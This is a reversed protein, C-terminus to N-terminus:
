KTQSYCHATLIPLFSLTILLLHWAVSLGAFGAGLGALRLPRQSLSISSTSRSNHLALCHCLSSPSLLM